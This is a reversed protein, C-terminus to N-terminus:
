SGIKSKRLAHADGARFSGFHQEAGPRQRGLRELGQAFDDQFESSFVLSPTRVALIMACVLVTPSPETQRDTFAAAAAAAAAALLM